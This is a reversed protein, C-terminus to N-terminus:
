RRRHANFSSAALLLTWLLTVCGPEPVTVNATLSANYAGQWLALDGASLPSPSNGRQWVLFDRGDVDLDNDFDGPLGDVVEATLSFADVFASQPDANNPNLVADLMSARVRVTATGAPAIGTLTHQTWNSDTWFGSVTPLQGETFLEKEVSGSLVSGGSDLFELAFYFNTPSLRGDTKNNPDPDETGPDGEQWNLNTVGGAFFPEFAAHGTMTYRMGPTGPVDQFLHAFNDEQPVGNIVTFTGVYPKFWMNWYRGIDNGGDGLYRRHGYFAGEALTEFFNEPTQVISENMQWGPPIADDGAGDIGCFEIGPNTLLNGTPNALIPCDQARAQLTVALLAAGLVPISLAKM